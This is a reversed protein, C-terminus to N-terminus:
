IFTTGIETLIELIRDIGQIIIDRLFEILKIISVLQQSLITKDTNPLHEDLAM